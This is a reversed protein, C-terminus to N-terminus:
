SCLRTSSLTMDRGPPIGLAAPPNPIGTTGIRARSDFLRVAFLRLSVYASREALHEPHLAHHIAECALIRHLRHALVVVRVHLVQLLHRLHHAAVEGTQAALNEGREDGDVHVRAVNDVVQLLVLHLLLDVEAPLHLQPVVPVVLLVQAHHALGVRQEVVRVLIEARLGAQHHGRHRVSAVHGQRPRQVELQPAGRRARRPRALRLRRLVQALREPHLAHHEVAPVVQVVLEHALEEGPERLRARPRAEVLEVADVDLHEAVLGKYVM